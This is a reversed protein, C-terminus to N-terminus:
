RKILDLIANVNLKKYWKIYLSLAPEPVGLKKAIWGKKTGSNKIEEELNM